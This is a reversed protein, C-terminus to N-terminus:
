DDVLSLVVHLLYAATLLYLTTCDRLIISAESAGLMIAQQVVNDSVSTVISGNALQSTAATTDVEYNTTVHYNQLSQRIEDMAKKNYNLRSCTQSTAVSNDGTMYSSNQASSSVEVDHRPSARRVHSLNDRVAQLMRRDAPLLVAPRRVGWRPPSVNDTPRSPQM